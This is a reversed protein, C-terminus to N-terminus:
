TENKKEEFLVRAQNTRGVLAMTQFQTIPIYLNIPDNGLNGNVSVNTSYSTQYVQILEWGKKVYDTLNTIYIEEFTTYIKDNM